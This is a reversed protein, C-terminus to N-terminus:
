RTVFVGAERTGCTHWFFVAGGERTQTGRSASATVTFVVTLRFSKVCMCEDM